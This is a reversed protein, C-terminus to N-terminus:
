NLKAKLIQPKETKNAKKPELLLTLCNLSECSFSVLVIFFINEPPFAVPIKTQKQRTESCLKGVGRNGWIWVSM